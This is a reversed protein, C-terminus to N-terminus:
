KVPVTAAPPKGNDKIWITNNSWDIRTGNNSIIGSLGTHAQTTSSIKNGSRLGRYELRGDLPDIADISALGAIEWRYSSLKGDGSYGIWKGNLEASCEDIGRKWDGYNAM